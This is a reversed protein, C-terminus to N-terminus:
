YGIVRTAMLVFSDPMFIMVIILTCRLLPMSTFIGIMSRLIHTQYHFRVLILVQHVMNMEIVVNSSPGSVSVRASDWDQTIRSTNVSNPDNCTLCSNNALTSNSILILSFILPFIKKM